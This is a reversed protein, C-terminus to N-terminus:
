NSFAKKEKPRYLLKWPNVKLDATMEQLNDYLKPDYLLRGVTGNNSKITTMIDNINATLLNMNELTGGIDKRYQENHIMDSLGSVTKEVKNAVEMVRESIAEQAIPDKGFFTQDEEFFNKTDVGPIIEIYKEGLLGLQNITVLSDKPIKTEKRISLEVEAKTRGDERDFFLRIDKVVGEDVGAIRVPANKKLGNAFGFIVRVSKGEEFVVSDTISFIFVALGTLAAFVFLGVKFELNSEKLM